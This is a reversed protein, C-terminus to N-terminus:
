NIGYNMLLRIIADHRDHARKMVAPKQSDRGDGYNRGADGIFEPSRDRNGTDNRFRRALTLATSGDNTRAHTDAGRNILLKVTESDTTSVATLFPTYGYDDVANINAGRDLLAKISAVDFNMVAQHLPTAHGGKSSSVNPNAGYRLLIEVVQTNGNEAGTSLLPNGGLDRLDPSVGQNLLEEIRNADGVSVAQSADSQTDRVRQRAADIQESFACSSLFISLAVAAWINLRRGADRSVWTIHPAHDRSWAWRFLLWGSFAGSIVVLWGVLVFGYVAVLLILAILKSPDGKPNGSMGQLAYSIMMGGYSAIAVLGGLLAALYGQTVCQEDLIKSGITFGFFAAMCIPSWVFVSAIGSEFAASPGMFFSRGVVGFFFVIPICATCAFWAAALLRPKLGVRMEQDCFNEPM